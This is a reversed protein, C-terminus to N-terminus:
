DDRSSGSSPSVYDRQYLTVAYRILVGLIAAIPVALLLGLFGFLSGMALLAFIIWVPHLQVRDGVWRPTLVNGEIFQGVLFV